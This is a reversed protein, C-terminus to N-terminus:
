VVQEFFDKGAICVIAGDRAHLKKLRKKLENYQEVSDLNIQEVSKGFRSRVTITLM